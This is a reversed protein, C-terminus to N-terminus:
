GTRDRDPHATRECHQGLGALTAGWALNCFARWRAGPLWGEHRFDLVTIATPDDSWGLRGALWPAAPDGEATRLDFSLRHGLWESAANREDDVDSVCRWAVRAGEDLDTVRMRLPQGFGHDFEIVAGPKDGGTLAKGWWADLGERTTIARFVAPRPADIWVEHHIEEM